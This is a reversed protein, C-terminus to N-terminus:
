EPILFDVFILDYRVMAKSDPVKWQTVFMRLVTEAAIKVDQDSKQEMKQAFYGNIWGCIVNPQLPNFPYFGMLGELWDGNVPDERIEKLQDLKWLISFGEWNATWFPKEFELYIKDITGIEMGNITHIKWLPLLPEFMSLHREKLVGLSVTCILHDAHYLTGDICEVKITPDNYAIKRVEKNFQIFPIIDVVPQSSKDGRIKNQLLEFITVYGKDKWNLFPDGECGEYEHPDCSSDYWSNTGEMLNVRKHFFEYCEHALEPDIDKFEAMSLAKKYRSYFTHKTFNVALDFVVKLDVSLSM